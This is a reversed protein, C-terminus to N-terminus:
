PNAQAPYRLVTFNELTVSEATPAAMAGLLEIKLPDVLSDTAQGAGVSFSVGTGWSQVSWQVGGARVAADARGSILTASADLAQALMATAGWRVEIRFGSTTGQHSFDFRIDVRDGPKLLGAPITCSGLRVLSSSSTATGTSSCLVQPLTHVQGGEVSKRAQLSTNYWVDGNAASTPDETSGSDRWAAQQSSSSAQISSATLRGGADMRAVEVGYANQWSALPASGQGEGARVALTTSGTGPLADWVLLTATSANNGVSLRRSQNDWYLRNNNQALNGNGDVFPVSGAPFNTFLCTNWVVDQGNSVLCRNAPGLPLRTWTTTATGAAVILDGRVPAAPTTDSHMEDLLPHAFSEGGSMRYSAALVDGPQPIAEPAFTIVNGKLTYDLGQKLLLGNRYLALGSPPSPSDSLTFVANTGNILGAPTEADVFRANTGVANGGCPGATGDVRVCDGLNGVVAELAGQANVFVARSPAFGPGKEVRAELAEELGAVDSIQVTTAQQGAAPAAVRVDRIRLPTASPPVAWTEEFQVKGDSNYRVRYTTPPTATTTPVLRVRLVGIVVSVTLQQPAINSRDSAEFGKWEIFVVGNFPTGDAKYLVDQITTLPPAAWMAGAM